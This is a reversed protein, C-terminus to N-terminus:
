KQSHPPFIGCLLILKGAAILLVTSLLIKMTKESLKNAGFHAGTVGGIFAALVLSPAVGAEIQGSSFRGVLGAVSNVVIFIASIASAPKSPAWRMLVILPTLFVGGGIGVVGSMIGILAGCFIGQKVELERFPESLGILTDSKYQASLVVAGDTNDALTSHNFGRISEEGSSTRCKENIGDPSVVACKPKPSVPLRIAVAILTLALLLYYMGPQLHLSGGVFACPVSGVIFPWALRWSFHGARIYSCSALGAVLINLILATTAMVPPTYGCLSLIALYGSAGGHGVSSYLAAVLLVLASIGLDGHMM